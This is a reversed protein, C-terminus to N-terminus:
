IKIFYTNNIKHSGNLINKLTNYKLECSESAEKISMYFVGTETNLIIKSKPHNEGRNKFHPKRMKNKVDESHTKGYYPNLNLIRGYMPHLEKPSKRWFNNDGRNINGIKDKQSQSMKYGLTGEGGDTLNVLFGKNCDKRGYEQILFSELENAEEQTLDYSIIEVIYGFKSISLWWDNRNYKSFARKYKKKISNSNISSLSISGKGIYFVKNTDKRIHRYIYSRRDDM